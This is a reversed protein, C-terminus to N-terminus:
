FFRSYDVPETRHKKMPPELPELLELELKGLSEHSELSGLELSGLPGLPQWDLLELELRGPPALTAPSELLKVRGRYCEAM